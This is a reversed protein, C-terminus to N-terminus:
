IRGTVSEQAIAAILAARPPLQLRMEGVQWWICRQGINESELRADAVIGRVARRKRVDDSQKVVDAGFHVRANVDVCLTDLRHAVESWV